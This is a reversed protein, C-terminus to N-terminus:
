RPDLNLDCPKRQEKFVDLERRSKNGDTKSVSRESIRRFCDDLNKLPRTIDNVFFGDKVM